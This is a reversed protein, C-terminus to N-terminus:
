EETSRCYACHDFKLSAEEWGYFKGTDPDVMSGYILGHKRDERFGEYCGDSCFRAKQGFVQRTKM